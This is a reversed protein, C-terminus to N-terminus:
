SSLKIKYSYYEFKTAIQGSLTVLMQNQTADLGVSPNVNKFYSVRSM